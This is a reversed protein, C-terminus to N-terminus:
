ELVEPHVYCNNIVEQWFDTVPGVTKIKKAGSAMACLAVYVDCVDELSLGGLLESGRIGMSYDLHLFEEQTQTSDPGHFVVEVEDFDHKEISNWRAVVRNVLDILDKRMKVGGSNQSSRSCQRLNRSSHLVVACLRVGRDVEV